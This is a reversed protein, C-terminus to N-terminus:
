MGGDCVEGDEVCKQEENKHLCKVVLNPSLSTLNGSAAAIDSVVREGPLIIIVIFM